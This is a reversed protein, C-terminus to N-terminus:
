RRECAIGDSDSDLRAAYGPQGRYLPAKGAARVAACNAYYTPAPKAPAVSRRTPVVHRPVAASPLKRSPRIPVAIVADKSVGNPDPIFTETPEPEPTPTSTASPTPAFTPLAAVSVPAGCGALFAGCVVVALIPLKM